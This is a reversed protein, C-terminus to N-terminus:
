RPDTEGQNENHGIACSKEHSEVATVPFVCASFNRHSFRSFFSFLHHSTSLYSSSFPIPPKPGLPPMSPMKSNEPFCTSTWTIKCQCKWLWSRRRRSELNESVASFIHTRETRRRSPFRSEVRISSSRGLTASVLFGSKSFTTTNRLSHIFRIKNMEKEKIGSFYM